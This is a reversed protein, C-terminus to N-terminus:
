LMAAKNTHARRRHFLACGTSSAAGGVFMTSLLGAIVVRITLAAPLTPPLRACAVLVFMAIHSASLAGSCWAAFRGCGFAGCLVGALTASLAYALIAFRAPTTFGIHTWGLQLTRLAFPTAAFTPALSLSIAGVMSCRQSTFPIRSISAGGSSRTCEAIFAISSLGVIGAVMWFVSMTDSTVQLASSMLPAVFAVTMRTTLPVRGITLGSVIGCIPATLLTVRASGPRVLAATLIHAGVGVAASHFGYFRANTSASSGGSVAGGIQPSDGVVLSNPVVNLVAHALTGILLCANILMNADYLPLVDEVQEASGRSWLATFTFALDGNDYPIAKEQKLRVGLISADKKDDYKFDLHFHTFVRPKDDLIMGIRAPVRYGDVDLHYVCNNRIADAVRQASTRFLSVHCMHIDSNNHRYGANLSAWTGKDDDNGCYPMQGLNCSISPYSGRVATSAKIPIPEAYLYPLKEERQTWKYLALALLTTFLYLLTARRRQQTRGSAM